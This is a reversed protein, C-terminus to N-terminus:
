TVCLFSDHWVYSHTMDCMLILWTVCIFSNHWVYSHTMDCMFILWTVCILSVIIVVIPGLDPVELRNPVKSSDYWMYSHTIDCMHIFWTVCMFSDHWVYSLQRGQLTSIHPHHTIQHHWTVVWGWVSKEREEMKKGECSVGVYQSMVVRWRLFHDNTTCSENIHSIHLMEIHSMVWKYTHCTANIHTVHSMWTHSVDCEYAHCSEHMHTVHSMWTHSMVWAYTHCSENM